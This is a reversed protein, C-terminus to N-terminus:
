LQLRNLMRYLFLIILLGVLIHLMCALVKILNNFSLIISLNSNRRSRQGQATPYPVASPLAQQHPLLQVGQANGQDAYHAQGGRSQMNPPLRPPFQPPGGFSNPQVGSPRGQPTREIVVM